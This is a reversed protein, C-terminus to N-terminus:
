PLPPVTSSTTQSSSLGFGGDPPSPSTPSSIGLRTKEERGFSELASFDFIPQEVPIHSQYMPLGGTDDQEQGQLSVLLTPEHGVSLHNLHMEPGPGAHFHGPQEDMDGQAGVCRALHLDQEEQRSLGPFHQDDDLGITPRPPSPSIAEPTNGVVTNSRARSLHIAMDVYM